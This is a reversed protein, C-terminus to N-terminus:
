TLSMLERMLVEDEKRVFRGKVRLRSDAFNKRVDYKITKSWVRHNRKQLFRDIRVKRSDPSYAGVWGDPREVQRLGFEDCSARLDPDSLARPRGSGPVHVPKEEEVAMKEVATKEKKEKTKPRGKKRKPSTAAGENDAKLSAGIGGSGTPMTSRRAAPSPRSIQIGQVNASSPVGPMPGLYQEMWENYHNDAAAGGGAGGGGGGGGAATSVSNGRGRNGQPDNLLASFLSNSRMRQEYESMSSTNAPSNGDLHQPAMKGGSGADGDGYMAFDSVPGGGDDDPVVLDNFDLDGIGDDYQPTVTSPHQQQQQASTSTTSRQQQRTQHPQRQQQRIAATTGAAAMAQPLSSVIPPPPGMPQPHGPHRHDHPPLVASSISPSSPPMMMPLRADEDDDDHMAEINTGPDVIAADSDNVTLFGLDIDNMLDLDAPLRDQLEGSSIMRELASADGDTEYLDLARQLEEDGIIILDKLLSKTHRDLLGKDELYESASRLRGSVSGSRARKGFHSTEYSSGLSTPPTHSLLQSQQQQQQQQQHMQYHQQQHHQQQQGSGGGIVNANANLVSSLFASGSSGHSSPQSGGNHSQQQSQLLLLQQQQYYYYERNPRPVPISRGATATAAATAAPPKHAVGDDDDDDHIDDEDEGDMYAVATRGSETLSFDIPGGGDDDVDQDDDDRRFVGGGGGDDLLEEERQAQAHMNAFFKDRNTSTGGSSSNNNTSSTAAAANDTM